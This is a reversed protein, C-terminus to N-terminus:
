IQQTTWTGDARAEESAVFRQQADYVQKSTPSQPPTVRPKLLQSAPPPAEDVVLDGDDGGRGAFNAAAQKRWAKNGVRAAEDGPQKTLPVFESPYQTEPVNKASDRQSAQLKLKEDLSPRGGKSSSPGAASTEPAAVKKGPQMAMIAANLRTAVGFRTKVRATVPKMFAERWLQYEEPSAAKLAVVERRKMDEDAPIATTSRSSLLLAFQRKM